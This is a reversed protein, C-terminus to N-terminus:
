LFLQSWIGYLLWLLFVIGLITLGARAAALSASWTEVVGNVASRAQKEFATALSREPSVTREALVPVLLAVAILVFFVIM